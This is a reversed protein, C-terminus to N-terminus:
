DDVFSSRAWYGAGIIAILSLLQTYWADWWPAPFSDSAFAPVHLSAHYDLAPFFAWWSAGALVPWTNGIRLALGDAGGEFYAWVIMAGAAILPLALRAVIELSTRWDVGLLDRLALVALGIVIIVVIAIVGVPDVPKNNM